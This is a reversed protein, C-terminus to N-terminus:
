HTLTGYMDAGSAPRLGGFNPPGPVMAGYPYAPTRFPRTAVVHGTNNDRVVVVVLVGAIGGAVCEDASSSAKISVRREPRSSEKKLATGDGSGDGMLGGAAGELHRTVGTLCFDDAPGGPCVAHARHIISRITSNTLPGRYSFTDLNVDSVIHQSLFKNYFKVTLSSGPSSRRVTMRRSSQVYVSMRVPSVILMIPGKVGMGDGEWACGWSEDGGGGVEVIVRVEEELRRIRWGSVSRVAVAREVAGVHM